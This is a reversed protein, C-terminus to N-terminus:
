EWKMIYHMNSKSDKVEKKYDIHSDAMWYELANLHEEVTFTTRLIKCIAEPYELSLKRAIERSEKVNYRSLIETVWKKPVYVFGAIQAASRFEVHSEFIHNALVNLSVKNKNSEMKLKDLIEKNIRFTSLETEKKKEM